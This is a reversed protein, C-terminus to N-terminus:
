QKSSRKVRPHHKQQQKRAGLVMTKTLSRWTNKSRINELKKGPLTALCSGCFFIDNKNLKKPIKGVQSEPIPSVAHAIIGIFGSSSGLTLLHLDSSPDVLLERIEHEDTRWFGSSTATAMTKQFDHIQHRNEFFIVTIGPWHGWFLAIRTSFQIDLDRIGSVRKSLDCTEILSSWRMENEDNGKVM